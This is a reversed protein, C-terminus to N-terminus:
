MWDTSASRPRGISEASPSYMQEFSSATEADVVALIMEPSRFVLAGVAVAPALFLATAAGVYWRHTRVAGPFERALLRWLADWGSSRHAYITQHAETTLRELRDVLHAPYARDRALALQGCARRYLTATREAQGDAAARRGRGVALLLSELEDWEPRYLEEFQLPRVRAAGVAM